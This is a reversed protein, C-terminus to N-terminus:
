IHWTAQVPHPQLVPPVGVLAVGPVLMGGGDVQAQSRASGVQTQSAFPLQLPWIQAPCHTGLVDVQSGFLGTAQGVNAGTQGFPWVGIGFPM